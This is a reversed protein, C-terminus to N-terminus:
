RSCLSLRHLRRRSSFQPYIVMRAREAQKYGGFALSAVEPIGALVSQAVRREYPDFFRTVQPRNYEWAQRALDVIIAGIEQEAEGRLHSTLQEKDM